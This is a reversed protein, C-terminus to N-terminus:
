EVAGSRICDHIHLVGALGGEPTEVLCASIKRLSMLEVADTVLWDPAIRVPDPTAVQGPEMSWLDKANRRLDGDTIVGAIREADMLVAIGLSKESMTVVVDGMTSALPLVPMESGTRMVDAVRALRAGLRGGPHFKRFDEPEIGMMESVAVAIADGIALTLTTSTTPALGNRCAEVVHGYVVAVASARALASEAAGTVGIVPIHEHACYHLTDSLETTEGSNSLVLVASGPQILGLDGHSAEAPHMFVAPRGLSRFTSAIKRGIHGSKGVGAVILPGKTAHILEAAAVCDDSMEAFRAIAAAELDLVRRIASKAQARSSPRIAGAVAGSQAM